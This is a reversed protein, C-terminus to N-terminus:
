AIAAGVPTLLLRHAVAPPFPAQFAGWFPQRIECAQASCACARACSSPVRRPACLRWARRCQVACQVGPEEGAEEAMCARWQVWSQRQWWEGERIEWGGGVHNGPNVGGGMHNRHLQASHQVGYCVEIAFFYVFLCIRIIVASIKNNNTKM